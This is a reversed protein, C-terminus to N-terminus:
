AVCSSLASHLMNYTSILIKMCDTKESESESESESDAMGSDQEITLKQMNAQEKHFDILCGLAEVQQDVLLWDDLDVDLGAM